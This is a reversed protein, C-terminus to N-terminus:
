IWWMKLPQIWLRLAIVLPLASCYFSGNQGQFRFVLGASNSCPSILCAKRRHARGQDKIIAFELSLPLGSNKWKRKNDQSDMPQWFDRGTLLCKRKKKRRLSWLWQHSFGHVVLFGMRAWLQPWIRRSARAGQWNFYSSGLLYRIWGDDRGIRSKRRSRGRRFSIEM